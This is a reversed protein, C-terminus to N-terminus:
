VQSPNFAATMYVAAMLALGAGKGYLPALEAVQDKLVFSVALYIVAGLLATRMVMIERGSYNLVAIFILCLCNLLSVLVMLVFAPAAAAFAVGLVLRVALAGGLLAAVAGILLGPGLWRFVAGLQEVVVEGGQGSWDLIRATLVVPVITIFSQAANNMTLAARYAGAPHDGFFYAVFLVDTAMIAGTVNTAILPYNERARAGIDALWRNVTQRGDLWPGGLKRKAYGLTGILAFLNAAALAILYTEVSPYLVVLVLYLLCNAGATGLQIWGWARLSDNGQHFWQVTLSSSTIALVACCITVVSHMSGAASGVRLLLMLGVGAVALLGGLFLRMGLLSVFVQLRRPPETHAIVQAGRVDIGLDWILALLPTLAVLEAAIGVKDPGLVRLASAVGFFSLLRAGLQALALGMADGFVRGGSQLKLVAKGVGVGPQTAGVNM